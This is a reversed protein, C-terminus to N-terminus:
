FFIFDKGPKNISDAPYPEDIRNGTRMEIVKAHYMRFNALIMEAMKLHDKFEKEDTITKFKEYHEHVGMLIQIKNKSPYFRGHKFTNRLLTLIKSRNDM